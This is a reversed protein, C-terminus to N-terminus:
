MRSAAWAKRGYVVKGDKNVAHLGGARGVWLMRRERCFFEAATGVDNKMGVTVTVLLEGRATMEETYSKEEYRCTHAPAGHDSACCAYRLATYRAHDAARRQAKSVGTGRQQVKRARVHSCNTCAWVPKDDRETAEWIGNGCSCRYSDGLHYTKGYRAM